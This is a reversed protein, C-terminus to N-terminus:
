AGEARVFPRSADVIRRLCVAATLEQAIGSPHAAATEDIASVLEEIAETAARLNPGATDTADVPTAVLAGCARIAHALRDRAAAAGTDAGGPLRTAEYVTYTGGTGLIDGLVYKGGLVVHGAAPEEAPDNPTM